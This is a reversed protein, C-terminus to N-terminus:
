FKNFNNKINNIKKLLSILIIYLFHVRIKKKLFNFNGPVNYVSKFNNTTNLDNGLFIIPINALYGENLINNKYYSDLIVILNIKKNLQTITKHFKNNIVNQNKFLYKYSSNTNTLIGNMWISKPLLIHKTNKLIKKFNKNFENSTGVFLIKKNQIHYQYIINLAKKLRITIDSIKLSTNHKNNYIKTEILKLKILKNKIKKTNIKM